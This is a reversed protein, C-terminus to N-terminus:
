HLHLQVTEKDVISGDDVKGTLENIAGPKKM